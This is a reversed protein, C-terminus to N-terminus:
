PRGGGPPGGMMGMGFGRQGGLQTAAEELDAIVIEDGVEIGSVIEVYSDSRAGIEVPVPIFGGAGMMGAGTSREEADPRQAARGEAGAAFNPREVSEGEALKRLVVTRGNASQVANAPVRLVDEANATVIEIDATMGVRIPVESSDLLVTVPFLVVGSEIDATPAISLVTGSLPTDDFADVMVQVPQGEVIQVVDAEDLVVDVTLADLTSLIVAPDALSEGVDVNVGTVTGAIPATLTAQTLEYEAQAVDLEARAVAIEALQVAEETPQELLKDLNAQAQQVSAWASWRENDTAGDVTANYSALAKEYAAQASWLSNAASTYDVSSPKRAAMRDYGSQASALSVEAQELASAVKAIEQESAGGVVSAYSAQASQLSAEAATIAEDTAGDLTEALDIQAQALALEAETVADELDDPELRVLPQGIEVVDGVEVLVAAVEGSTTFSLNVETAAEVSGSASVAARVDGLEVRATELVPGATAPTTRQQYIRFGAYGLGGMLVIGLIWWWLKKM